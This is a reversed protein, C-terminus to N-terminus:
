PCLYRVRYDLCFGDPQNANVCFGGPQVQCSYVEGTQSWDVGNLTQCQIGVPNPCIPYGMNIFDNTVEYDGNGSPNDRDFWPTWYSGSGSINLKFSGCWGSYGDVVLTIKQGASLNLTLSSQLTGNADDNCGLSVSQAQDMVQLVTDYSSGATTFTFSGSSPATWYYVRDHAGNSGCGSWFHNGAGCTDGQVVPSGM